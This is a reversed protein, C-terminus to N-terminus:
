AIEGDGLKRRWTMVRHGDADFTGVRDRVQIACVTTGIVTRLPLAHSQGLTRAALAEGVFVHFIVENHDKDVQHEDLWLDTAVRIRDM